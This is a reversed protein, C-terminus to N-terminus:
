KGDSSDAGATKSWPRCLPDGVILLQYPGSVSQYFAEVMSAGRVYHVHIFPSPFKAAIAYPEAVTGSAGAAGHRILDTLPPKLILDRFQNVDITEQDPVKALEVVNAQPISRLAM